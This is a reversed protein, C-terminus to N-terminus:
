GELRREDAIAVMVATATENGTSTAFVQMILSPFPLNSHSAAINVVHVEAAVEGGEPGVGNKRWM